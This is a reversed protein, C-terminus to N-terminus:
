IPNSPGGETDTGLIFTLLIAVAKRVYQILRAGSKHQEESAESFNQGMSSSDSQNGGIDVKGM